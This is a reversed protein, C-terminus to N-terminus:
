VYNINDLLPSAIRLPAVCRILRPFRRQDLGAKLRLHPSRHQARILTYEFGQEAGSVVDAAHDISGLFLLLLRFFLFLVLVLFLGLIIFVLLLRLRKRGPAATAANSSMSAHTVSPAWVPGSRSSCFASPM